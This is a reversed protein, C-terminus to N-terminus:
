IKRQDVKMEERNPEIPTSNLIIELQKVIDKNMDIFIGHDKYWRYTPLNPVIPRCGCFLGEVAAMEFGEIKRAALVYQISNLLLNFEHDKQFPLFKYFKTDWGFNTGTHYMLQNTNKCAEYLLDISETEAIHGTTFIKNRKKVALRNFEKPDCGWPLSLLHAKSEPVYDILNHFSLTLLSREWYKNWDCVGGTFFVHQILIIKKRNDLAEEIFPIEGTGVIHIIQVDAEEKTKSWEINSPAYQEIAKKIRSFAFGWEPRTVQFFKTM